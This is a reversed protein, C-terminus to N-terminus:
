AGARVVEDPVANVGDGRPALEVTITEGGAEGRAREDDLGVFVRGRPFLRLPSESVLPEGGARPVDLDLGADGARSFSPLRCDDNELEGGFNM